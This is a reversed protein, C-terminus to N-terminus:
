GGTSGSTPPAKRGGRAKAVADKCSASVQAENQKLCGIIRGGGPQVGSCLKEVDAKCAARPSTGLPQDAALAVGSSLILVAALAILASKMPVCVETNSSGVILTRGAAPATAFVYRVTDNNTGDTTVELNGSTTPVFRPSKTRLTPV